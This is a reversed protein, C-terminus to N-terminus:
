AARQDAAIAIADRQPDPTVWLQYHGGRHQWRQGTTQDYETYRIREIRESRLLRFGVIPFDVGQLLQHIRHAAQRAPVGSSRSDVVKVLYVPREVVSAPDIVDTTEVYSENHSLLTVIVANTVGLQAVDFVVGGPVLASLTEDTALQQVVAADVAGSDPLPLV